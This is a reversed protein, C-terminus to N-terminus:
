VQGVKHLNRSIEFFFRKGKGCIKCMFPKADNETHFITMHTKMRSKPVLKGCMTCSLKEHVTRIHKNLYPQFKTQFNCLNCHLIPRDSEKCKKSGLHTKLHNEKTFAKGCLECIINKPRKNRHVDNIHKNTEKRSNLIEQCLGCRYKWLGSHITEM